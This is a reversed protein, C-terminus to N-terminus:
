RSEWGTGRMRVDREVKVAERPTCIAELQETAAQYAEHDHSARATRRVNMLDIIIAERSTTQTM